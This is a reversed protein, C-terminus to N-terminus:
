KNLRECLEDLYERMDSRVCKEGRKNLLYYIGYELIVRAKM